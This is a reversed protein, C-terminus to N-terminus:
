PNIKEGHLGEEVWSLLERNDLFVQTLANATTNCVYEQRDHDTIIGSIGYNHWIAHLVEHILTNVMERKSHSSNVIIEGTETTYKGMIEGLSSPEFSVSVTQYGIRLPGALVPYYEKKSKTM